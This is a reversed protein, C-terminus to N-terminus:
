APTKTQGKRKGFLIYKREEMTLKKLREVAMKQQRHCNRAYLPQTSLYFKGCPKKEYKQCIVQIIDVWRHTKILIQM